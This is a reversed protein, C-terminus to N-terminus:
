DGNVVRRWEDEVTEPGDCDFHDLAIDGLGEPQLTYGLLRDWVVEDLLVLRRAADPLLRVEALARRLLKEHRAFDAKALRGIEIARAVLESPSAKDGTKRASFGLQQAIRRTPDLNADRWAQAAVISNTPMGARVYKSVAAPSVGLAKAIDRKKVM